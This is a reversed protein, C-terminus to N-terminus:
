PYQFASVYVLRQRPRALAGFRAMRRDLHSLNEEHRGGCLDSRYSLQSSTRRGLFLIGAAPSLNSVRLETRRRRALIYQLTRESGRLSLRFLARAM